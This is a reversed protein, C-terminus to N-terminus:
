EDFFSDSDADPAGAEVDEDGGAFADADEDLVADDEVDFGDDSHSGRAEPNDFYRQAAPRLPNGYGTVPIAEKVKAPDAWSTVSSTYQGRYKGTGEEDLLNPFIPRGVVKGLAASLTKLDVKGKGAPIMKLVTAEKMGCSILFDRAIHIRPENAKKAHESYNGSIMDWCNIVTGAVIPDKDDFPDLRIKSVLNVGGKKTPALEAALVLGKGVGNRPLLVPSNGGSSVGPTSYGSEGSYELSGTLAAKEKTAM